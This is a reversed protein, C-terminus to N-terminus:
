KYEKKHNITIIEEGATLRCDGAKLRSCKNDHMFIIRCLDSEWLSVAAEHTQVLAATKIPSDSEVQIMIHMIMVPFWEHWYLKSVAKLLDCKHDHIYHDWGFWIRGNWRQNLHSFRIRSPDYYANDYTPVSWTLVAQVLCETSWM